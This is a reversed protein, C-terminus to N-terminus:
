GIDIRTPRVGLIDSVDSGNIRGTSYADIVLNFFTVGRRSRSLVLPSMPFEDIKKKPPLSKHIQDLFYNLTSWDILKLDYARRIYVESSVKMNKALMKLEDYSQPVQVSDRPLLVEAAFSDCRREASNPNNTTTVLCLGSNGELIHGIEHFLTFIKRNNSNRSNLTIAYPIGEEIYSFGDIESEPMPFQFTFIGLKTEIKERWFKLAQQSDRLRKQQDVSVNLMTRLGKATKIFSKSSNGSYPWGYQEQIEAKSLLERAVQLYRNTRRIALMTEKHLRKEDVRLNRRDRPKKTQEPVSELFFVSVQRKYEKAVRKLESFTISEGTSEWERVTSVDKNLKEAIEDIEYGREKRAWVMM